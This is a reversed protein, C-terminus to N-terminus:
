QQDMDANKKKNKQKEKMLQKMKAKQEDNLVAGTSKLQEQRVAKLKAEKEEPTLKDNNKIEDMKAKNALQLEKLKSKQERSLNLDKMMQKKGVKGAQKTGTIASLSDSSQKTASKTRQVQAFSCSISIILSLLISLKKM